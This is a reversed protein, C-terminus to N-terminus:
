ASLWPGDLLLHGQCCLLQQCFGVCMDSWSPGLANWPTSPCGYLDHGDGGVQETTVVPLGLINAGRIQLVTVSM